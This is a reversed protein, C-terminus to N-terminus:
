HGSNVFTVRKVGGRYQSDVLVGKRLDGSGTFQSLKLRSKEMFGVQMGPYHGM